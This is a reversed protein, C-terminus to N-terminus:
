IRTIISRSSFCQLLFLGPIYYKHLTQCACIPGPLLRTRESWILVSMSPCRAKLLSVMTYTRTTPWILRTAWHALTTCDEHDCISDRDDIHVQERARKAMAIAARGEEDYSKKHHDLLFQTDFSEKRQRLTLKISTLYPLGTLQLMSWPRNQHAAAQHLGLTWSYTTDTLVVGNLTSGTWIQLRGLGDGCGM